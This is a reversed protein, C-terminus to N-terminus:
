YVKYTGPSYGADKISQDIKKVLNKSYSGPKLIIYAVHHRLSVSVSKVGTVRGIKKQLGYACFQCTMGRIKYVIRKQNAGYCFFTTVVLLISIFTKFSTRTMNDMTDM